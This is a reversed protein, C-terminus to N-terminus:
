ALFLVLFLFFSFYVFFIRSYVRFAFYFLYYSISLYAIDMSSERSKGVFYCGYGWIEGMGVTFSRGLCLRSGFCGFVFLSFCFELSCGDRQCRM